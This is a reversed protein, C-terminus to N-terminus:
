FLLKKVKLLGKRGVYNRASSYVYDEPRYVIGAKVPNMHIYALKQRTFHESFCVKPHNGAQWVQYHRIRPNKLAADLFHDLLWKRRSEGEEKIQQIIRRSTFQKFDRMANVLSYKSKTRVLLHLHNSMIVYGYIVLGKNQQCYILSEIITQKYRSRTFVDVWDVVTSTVFHIYGEHIKYASMLTQKYIKEM